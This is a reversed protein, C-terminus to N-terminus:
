WSYKAEFWFQRGLKYSVSNSTSARSTRARIVTDFANIVDLKLDLKNKGIPITQTLGFDVTFANKFKEKEYVGVSGTYSGCISPNFAPCRESSTTYQHFSVNEPAIEGASESTGSINSFQVNPNDHMLDTITGNSHPRTSIQRSTIRQTGM